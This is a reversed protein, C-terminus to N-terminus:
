FLHPLSSQALLTIGKELIIHNRRDVVGNQEQTYPCSARHIIGNTNLFSSVNRFKGGWDTQMNKIDCSFQTKVM